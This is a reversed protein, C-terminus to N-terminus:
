PSGVRELKGPVRLVKGNSFQSWGLGGLVLQDGWKGQLRSRGCGPGGQGEGPEYKETASVM